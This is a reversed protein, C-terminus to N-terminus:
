ATLACSSILAASGSIDLDTSTTGDTLARLHLNTTADRVLPQFHEAYGEDFATSDDTITMSQHMNRSKGPPLGGVLEGLVQHALEHSFIEELNGDKVSDQDVVLDVYGALVLQRQGNPDELWFGHRAFGGEEQSMLLYTPATLYQPTPQGGIESLLLNRAYHELLIVRHAFSTELVQYVEGLLPSDKALRFVPYSKGDPAQSEVVNGKADALAVVVKATATLPSQAVAGPLGLCALLAALFFRTTMSVGDRFSRRLTQIDIELEPITPM